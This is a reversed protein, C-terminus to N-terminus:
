LRRVSSAYTPQVLRKTCKWPILCGSCRSSSCTLWNRVWRAVSRFTLAEVCPLREARQEEQITAHEPPIQTLQTREDARPPGVPEGDDQAGRLDFGHEGPELAVDPDDGAEHVPRVKTEALADREADLVEVEISSDPTLM